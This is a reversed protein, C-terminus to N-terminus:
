LLEHRDEDQSLKKRILSLPYGENMMETISRFRKETDTIDYFRKNGNRHAVSFLGITTYYNLKSYPIQLKADIEKASVCGNQGNGNQM